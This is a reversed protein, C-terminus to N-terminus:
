HITPQLWIGFPRWVTIQATILNRPLALIWLRMVHFNLNDIQRAFETARAVQINSQGLMTAPYTSAEHGEMEM